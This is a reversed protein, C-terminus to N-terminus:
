WPNREQVGDRRINGSSSSSSSSGGGTSAKWFGRGRTGIIVRGSGPKFNVFDVLLMPLGTNQAAWTTGGDESLFVGKEDYNNLKNQSPSRILVDSVAVIRSSNTPDVAVDAIYKPGGNSDATASFHKWTNSSITYRWVGRKNTKSSNRSVVFIRDSNNPDVKVSILSVADSGDGLETFSTGNTTRFLGSSSAVYLKTGGSPAGVMKKANSVGTAQTWAGGSNTSYFVKGSRIMWLNSSDDPNVHLDKIEGSTGSPLSRTSWNSGSNTTRYLKVQAGGQGQGLYWTGGTGFAFATAGFFSSLGSGTRKWSQQDDTSRWKTADWGIMASQNPNSPNFVVGDTLHGQYGNGVWRGSGASTASKDAWSSGANTTRWIALGTGGFVRSSNNPDFSFMNFDYYPSNASSGFNNSIDTWSSGGNTTKYTKHSTRGSTYLVSGNNPDVEVTLFNANNSFSIGSNSASWSNGNNTSKYIGSTGCAVWLVNKNTPHLTVWRVNDVPLGSSKKTWSQANNTSIYLGNGTAAYFTETGDVKRSRVTNVRGGINSQFTWSDGGNTSLYTKGMNTTQGVLNNRHTGTFAYLRSSNDLDFLIKQVPAVQKNNEHAPFGSRKKTWNAGKNTSKFPGGATAVWIIDDNTPHYTFEEVERTGKVGLGAKWTNGGDTSYGVGLIDGGVMIRNGDYPSVAVSTVWGGVGPVNLPQWNLTIGFSASGCTSLGLLLTLWRPHRSKSPLLSSKSRGRSLFFTKIKKM